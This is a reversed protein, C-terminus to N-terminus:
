LKNPTVTMFIRNSIYKVIVSILVTLIFILIVNVAICPTLKMLSLPGLIIFQHILYANYSYKDSFDCFARIIRHKFDINRFIRILIFFSTIGLFVHNMDCFFRYYINKSLDLDTFYNIYIQLLNFPTAIYIVYKVFKIREKFRGFLYGLVYCIIWAVNYYTIFLCFLVAVIALLGIVHIYTHKNNQEIVSCFQELLPTILYCMLIYSIFWLHGGGKVTIKTFMVLVADMKSLDKLYVIHIIIIPVIVIYYPILIKKFSKKYFDVCNDIKKTGYLYGSMFLFIQVGVNFWWALACDLYQMIHCSFISLFALLRILSISYNKNSM